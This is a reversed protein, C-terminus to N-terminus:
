AIIARTRGSILREVREPDINFTDPAIDAFVPIGNWHLISTATAAMTWPTTIVEDGPEIGAAGVAAILGSTWSNVALAHRVGFYEAAQQEFNRVQPGGMFDPGPAGIYASLVGGQIVDAVALAEEEGVSVFPEFSSSILPEGGL